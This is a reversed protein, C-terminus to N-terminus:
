RQLVIKKYLIKDKLLKMYLGQKAKFDTLM